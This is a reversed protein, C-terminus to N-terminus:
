LSFPFLLAINLSGYLVFIKWELARVLNPTVRTIVFNWLWQSASAVSMGYHRTRTPFIDASYIWPLPGWGMSFFAVYLYLLAAMVKSSSEPGPSTGDTKSDTTPPPHTKLLAGVIFFLTGM